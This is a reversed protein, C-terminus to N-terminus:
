RRHAPQTHLRVKCLWSWDYNGVLADRLSGDGLADKIKSM